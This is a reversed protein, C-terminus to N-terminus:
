RLRERDLVKGPAGLRLVSCGDDTCAVFVTLVLPASATERQGAVNGARHLTGTVTVPTTGPAVDDTAGSTTTETWADPVVASEIDVWQAADYQRLQEWWTDSPLYAELDTMLGPTEVGTPDAVALLQEIIADRSHTTTDWNFLTVTVQRAFGPATTRTRSDNADPGTAAPPGSPEPAVTALTESRVPTGAPGTETSLHLGVATAILALALIAGVLLRHREVWGRIM